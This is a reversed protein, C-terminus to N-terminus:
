LVSRKLNIHNESPESDGLVTKFLDLDDLSSLRPHSSGDSIDCLTRSRFNHIHVDTAILM